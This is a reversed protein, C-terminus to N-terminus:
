NFLAIIDADPISACRYMSVYMLAELAGEVTKANGILTTELSPSVADVVYLSHDSSVYVIDGAAISSVGSILHYESVITDSLGAVNTELAKTQYASLDIDSQSSSLSMALVDWKMDPASDTGANVAVINTGAMVSSGAGEIFNNDTVFENEINYVWGVSVDTIKTWVSSIEQWLGESTFTGDVASANIYRASGKVNYINSLRAKLESVLTALGAEDLYKKVAM